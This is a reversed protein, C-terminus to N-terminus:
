LRRWMRVHPIDVEMFEKGEVQFGLREYLPVAHVQANLRAVRHGEQRAWEMLAQMLASGVGQRRWPALVALRGIHGDPLLRGTGIPVGGADTALAHMSRADDEDWELEAPVSQERIFVAERVDRIRAQDAQWSARSVQFSKSM